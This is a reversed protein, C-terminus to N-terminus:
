QSVIVREFRLDLTKFQKGQIKFQHIVQEFQYLQDKEAKSLGFIIKQSDTNLAIMNFGQIDISNIRLGLDKAKTLFDLSAHIDKFLLSDGAKSGSYSLKQYYHIIPLSSNKTQIKKLIRANSSLVFYGEGAEFQALPELFSISVTITSPYKKHVTVKNIYSNNNYLQKEATKENLTILSANEFIELGQIARKSNDKDVIVQKVQFFTSLFYSTVIVAVFFFLTGILFLAQKKKDSSQKSSPKPQTEHM